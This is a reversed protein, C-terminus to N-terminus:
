LVNPLKGNAIDFQCSIKDFPFMGSDDRKCEYMPLSIRVKMSMQVLASSENRLILINEISGTQEIVKLSNQRKLDSAEKVTADNKTTQFPNLVIVANNQLRSIPHWIKAAWESDFLYSEVKKGNMMEEEEDDPLEQVDPDDDKNKDESKRIKLRKDKWTEKIEVDLVVSNQQVFHNFSSYYHFFDFIVENKDLTVHLVTMNVKIVCPRIKSFKPLRNPDYSKALRFVKQNNTTSALKIKGHDVSSKIKDQISNGDNSSLVQAASRPTETTTSTTTSTTSTAKRASEELQRFREAERRSQELQQRTLVNLDNLIQDFQFSDPLPQPLSTDVIFFLIM